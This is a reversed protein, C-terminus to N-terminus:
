DIVLRKRTVARVITIGRDGACTREECIGMYFQSEVSYAGFGTESIVKLCPGRLFCSKWKLEVTTNKLIQQM